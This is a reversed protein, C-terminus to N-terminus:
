RGVNIGGLGTPLKPHIPDIRNYYSYIWYFLSLCIITLVASPIDGSLLNSISTICSCLLIIVLLINIFTWGKIESHEPEATSAPLPTPSAVPYSPVPYSPTPYSPIPYSPPAVPAPLAVQPPPVYSPPATPATPAVMYPMPTTALYNDSTTIPPPTSSIPPYGPYSM